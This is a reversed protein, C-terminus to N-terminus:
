QVVGIQAPPWYRFVAKGFIYRQPVLGWARSDYSQSRHDGLVYYYGKKVMVAGRDEAPRYEDPVYPEAIALGNVWVQGHHIEVRDGPVGIVRKIFSKEPDEPFWFVVVDGHEIEGVRYSFKNVIIREHDHLRPAMSVGEVRFPQFLFVIVFLFFLGALACDKALSVLVARAGSPPRVLLATPEAAGPEAVASLTDVSM